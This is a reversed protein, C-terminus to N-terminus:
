QSILLPQRPLYFLLLDHILNFLTTAEAKEMMAYKTKQSSLVSILGARVAAKRRSEATEAM